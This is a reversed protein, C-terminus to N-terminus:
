GFQNRKRKVIRDNTEEDNECMEYESRMENWKTAKRKIKRESESEM